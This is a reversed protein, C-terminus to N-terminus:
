SFKKVQYNWSSCNIEPIFMLLIAVVVFMSFTFSTLRFNWTISYFDTNEASVEEPLIVVRIILDSLSM